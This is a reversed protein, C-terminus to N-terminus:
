WEGDVQKVAPVTYKFTRLESIDRGPAQEVQYRILLFEPEIWYDSVDQGRTRSTRLQVMQFRGFVAKWPIAVQEIQQDSSQRYENAFTGM